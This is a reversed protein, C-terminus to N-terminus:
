SSSRSNNSSGGVVGTAALSANRANGLTGQFQHVNKCKPDKSLQAMHRGFLVGVGTNCM